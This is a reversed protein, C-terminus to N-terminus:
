FNPYAVGEAKKWEKIALAGEDAGREFSQIFYFSMKEGRTKNTLTGVTHNGPFFGEVKDHMFFSGAQWEVFIINKETLLVYFDKGRSAFIEGDIVESGADHKGSIKQSSCACSLSGLVILLAVIKKM